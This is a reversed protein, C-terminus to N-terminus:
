GGTAADLIARAGPQISVASGSIYSAMGDLITKVQTLQLVSIPRTLAPYLVPNMPNNTNIVADNTTALSGDLNVSVTHLQALTNAVADDTWCADIAEIQAYITMLQQALAVINNACAIAQSQPSQTAPSM